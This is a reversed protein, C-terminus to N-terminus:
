SAGRAWSLAREMQEWEILFADHGHRSEVQWYDADGGSASVQRTLNVLHGPFFLQDSDIGIARVRGNWRDMPSWRDPRTWSEHAEPQPPPRFLDHRDMATLQALYARADFRHRLKRGQHELYTQMPLPRGTPPGNPDDSSTQRDSLGPEARYTMHAIQRAVELGRAADDPFGPDALIASRGAHNWGQIWPTARVSAAIPAVTAVREPALQALALAIMGGLSGGTVLDLSRVGLRDLALWLARAQDWTTVTAPHDGPWEFHGKPPERPVRLDRTAQTSAEDRMTPFGLDAPGFTGYCSALNNLCLIRTSEPDLAAGPGVLASWWGDAGGLVADATLAHVVLVTPIPELWRPSARRLSSQERLAVQAADGREVVAGPVHPTPVVRDVLSAREREPGWWWGRVYLHPLAPGMELSFPPVWLDFHLPSGASV